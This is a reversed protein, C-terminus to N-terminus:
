RRSRCLLEQEDGEVFLGGADRPEVHRPVVGQQDHHRGDDDDARHLDEAHDEDGRHEDDGDGRGRLDGV